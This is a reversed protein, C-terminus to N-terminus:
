NLIIPILMLRAKHSIMYNNSSKSFEHLKSQHFREHLDAWIAHASELYLLSDAIEKSIANLFYSTVMNNCRSRIGVTPNDTMPQSLIGDVFRPKNKANLAMLMARSWTNYNSGTLLHSVLVLGPHDGSHIFFPNNTNEMFSQDSQTATSGSTPSTLPQFRDDNNHQGGRAMETLPLPLFSQYWIVLSFPSFFRCIRRENISFILQVFLGLVSYGFHRKYYYDHM